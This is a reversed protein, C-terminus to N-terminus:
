IRRDSHHQGPRVYIIATHGDSIERGQQYRDEPLDEWLREEGLGDDNGGSTSRGKSGSSPDLTLAKRVSSFNRRLRNAFKQTTSNKPPM